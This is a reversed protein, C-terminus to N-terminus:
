GTVARQLASINREVPYRQRAQELFAQFLQQKKEERLSTTITPKDKEFAAPDFAKKELVRVVAYGGAARVPESLTKEPLSYAAEELAASSGLGFAIM